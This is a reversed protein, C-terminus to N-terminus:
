NMQETLNEKTKKVSDLLFGAYEIVKKFNANLYEVQCQIHEKKETSLKKKQSFANAVLENISENVALDSAYGTIVEDIFVYDEDEAAIEDEECFTTESEQFNPITSFRRSFRMENTIGFSPQRAKTM